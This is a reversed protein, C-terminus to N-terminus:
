EAWGGEIYAKNFENSLHVLEEYEAPELPYRDLIAIAFSYNEMQAQSNLGSVPVRVSEFLDIKLEDSPVYRGMLIELAKRQVLASEDILANRLLRVEDQRRYNDISSLAAARVPPDSHDFYQDFVESNESRLIKSNQGTTAGTNALAILAASLEETEIFYPIRQRIAQEISPDSFGVKGFISLWVKVNRGSEIRNMLEHELEAGDDRSGFSLLYSLAGFADEGELDVMGDLLRQRLENSGAVWGKIRDDSFLDFIRDRNNAVAMIASFQSEVSQGIATEIPAEDSISAAEDRLKVGDRSNGLQSFFGEPNTEVVSKDLHTTEYSLSPHENSLSDVNLFENAFWGLLLGATLIVVYKLVQM